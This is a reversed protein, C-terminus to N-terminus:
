RAFSRHREDWYRSWMPSCDSDGCTTLLYRFSRLTIRETRGHPITELPVRINKDYRVLDAAPITVQRGRAILHDDRDRHGDAKVGEDAHTTDHLMDMPGHSHM